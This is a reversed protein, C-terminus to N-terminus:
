RRSVWNLPPCSRPGSRTITAMSRGSWWSVWKMSITSEVNRAVSNSRVTARCCRSRTRVRGHRRSRGDSRRGTGRRPAQGILVGGPADPSRYCRVGPVGPVLRGVTWTRHGAPQFSTSGMSFESTANAPALLTQSPFLRCIIASVHSNSIGTIVFELLGQRVYSHSVASTISLATLVLAIGGFRLPLM